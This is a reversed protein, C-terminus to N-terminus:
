IRALGAWAVPPSLYPHAPRTELHWMPADVLWSPQLGTRPVVAETEGATLLSVAKQQCSPARGSDLPDRATAM